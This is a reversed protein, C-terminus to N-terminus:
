PTSGLVRRGELVGATGAGAIVQAEYLSPALRFFGRLLPAASCHCQHRLGFLCVPQPERAGDGDRTKCMRDKVDPFLFRSGLCTLPHAAAADTRVGSSASM